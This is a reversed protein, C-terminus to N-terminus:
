SLRVPPSVNYHEKIGGVGPVEFPYNFWVPNSESLTLQTEDMTAYGWNIIDEFPRRPLRKVEWAVYRLSKRVLHEWNVAAYHLLVVDVDVVRGKYGQIPTRGTQPYLKERGIAHKILRKWLPGAPHHWQLDPDYRVMMSTNNHAAYKEPNDSRWYREGRWLWVKLFRYIGIDDAEAIRRVEEMSNAAFVEDFDVYIIWDADRKGAEKTMLNFDNVESRWKENKRLLSFTVKENGNILETAERSLNGGVVIIEDAVKALVALNRSLIWDVNWGVNMCSIIKPSSPM